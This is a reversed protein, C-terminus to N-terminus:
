LKFNVMDAEMEYYHTPGRAGGVIPEDRHNARMKLVGHSAAAAILQNAPSEPLLGRVDQDLPSGALREVLDGLRKLEERLRAEDWDPATPAPPLLRTM